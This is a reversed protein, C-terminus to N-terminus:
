NVPNSLDIIQQQVANVRTMTEQGSARTSSTLPIIVGVVLALTLALMLITIIVGKM